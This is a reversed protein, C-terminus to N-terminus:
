LLVVREVLRVADVGVVDDEEVPEDDDDGVRADVVVRTDDEGVVLAGLDVVM